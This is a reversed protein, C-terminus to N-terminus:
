APPTTTTAPNTPGVPSLPAMPRPAPESMPASGFSWATPSAAPPPPASKSPSSPRPPRGRPSARCPTPSPTPPAPSPPPTPSPPPRSPPSPASPPCGVATITLGDGVFAGQDNDLLTLFTNGTSALAVPGVLDAAATTQSQNPQCPTGGNPLASTRWNAPQSNPLAVDYLGLSYGLGDPETPWPSADDYTVSNVIEALSNQLTLTEGANDLRGSTWAVVDCGLTAPNYTANPHALLLYGNPSIVTSVTFTHGIGASFVFGQLDFPNLSDTNYLEIFEQDPGQGASPNYHIETLIIPATPEFVATIVESASLTITIVATPDPPGGQWEWGVFTYGPEATAQLRLPITNYFRGTFNDSPVPVEHAFLRGGGAPTTIINLNSTTSIQDSGNYGAIHSYVNTPRGNAFNRMDQIEGAWNTPYGWKAVHRPIEPAIRDAAADLLTNVRVPDFTISLHAASRQAYENRFSENVMMRQFIIYSWEPASGNNSIARTISNANVASNRFGSETDYLMWRWQGASSPRWIRLNNSPWDSNAYYVQAIYYNMYAPLDIQQTASYYVTPDTMDNNKVYDMLGNLGDISGLTAELVPVAPGYRFREIFDIEDAQYGHHMEIYREDMKERFNLIGEYAGNRFVISPAYSQYDVNEMHGVLLSQAFGDRLLSRTNDQGSNRLLLAPYDVIDRNSFFPYSLTDDGYSERPRLATSKPSLNRSCNGFMRIGMEMNIAPTAAPDFLEFAIPREWEQFYNRPSYSECNSKPVGNTGAISISIMNDGAWHTPELSYSVIPLGAPNSVNIFYTRTHARGPLYGTAFTRARVVTTSNIALPTGTYLTSGAGGQQPMAGNTTYWIEAGALSSSLALSQSTPYFGAALSFLPQPATNALTPLSVATNNSAEATPQGFYGWDPSGDTARGYAIDATQAAFFVVDILNHAPDYLALQGGNASINFNTSNPTAAETGMGWFLRHGNAPISTGAPIPWLTPQALDNTLYYGSLDVATGSPNYLELWDEFNNVDVTYAGRGLHSFTNSAMLENIFLTQSGSLLVVQTAASDFPSRTTAGRGTPPSLGTIFLGARPSHAAPCRAAM